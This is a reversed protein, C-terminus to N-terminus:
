IEIAARARRTDEDLRVCHEAFIIQEKSIRDLISAYLNRSTPLLLGKRGWIDGNLVEDAAIAITYGVTKSMASMKEDGDVKLTASHLETSGDDFSGEVEHHMLVVDSQGPRFAMKEELVRAFSALVSDPNALPQSDLLELFQSCEAVRRALQHDGKSALLFLDELSGGVVRRKRLNDLMEGWSKFEVPADNFFGLERYADMLSSYGAYRLTGRFCTSASQIGYKEMYILSNRNPLSELNLESWPGRFRTVSALLNEGDVDVITGNIKYTAHNLCASLVGKPNWSFKYRLPNDAASPSPLGGCLSQFRRVTGGRSHINDIIRMASMHDLGPDLGVENLITIGAAKARQNLDRMADSEYSATVMNTVKDICMEAVMPHFAAPLLSVVVDTQDILDGLHKTDNRVDVVVHKGNLAHSAMNRAESEDFGAVVVERGPTRGLYEVASGSVMGSGLILVKQTVESHVSVSTRKPIDGDYRKVMAESADIIDTLTCIKTHVSALTAADSSSVKLVVLSKRPSGDRSRRVDCELIEFHCGQREIVDLSQNILGSDFLHGELSLIMSSKHNEQRQPQRTMLAEIYKFGQALEGDSAICANGIESPLNTLGCVGSHNRGCISDKIIHRVFPLLADGFYESSEKPLESPLIDVGSVTVGDGTVDDTIERDRRPDYEFFPREISTVRHLFEISGDVDCSIDAVVQLRPIGTEYLEQMEEKTLLRPFRENWYAGNVLVSVYKAIRKSFVSSYEDPHEQYRQRDFAAGDRHEVLDSVGVSLIYVCKHPGRYEDISALDEVTVFEHPLEQLVEMAGSHVKGGQGTVCFILPEIPLGESQIQEGVLRLCRRAEDWDSYSYTPPIHLLPTSFGGHLLRRGLAHLANNTGAMGAFKGFAVLRKRKRKRELCKATSRLGGEVICEYDFLQIKNDLIYKLLAMNEPQGKIVHSFFSYTKEPILDEEHLPRKVGLILDAESLDEQVVAGAKEYQNDPFVRRNSPQVIVKQLEGSSQYDEILSEIHRPCLPARREWLNYTERMVGLVFGSKATGLSRMLLPSGRKRLRLVAQMRLM